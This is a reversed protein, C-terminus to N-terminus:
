VFMKALCAQKINGLKTLQTQHQSLLTDINKFLTGIKTQEYKNKPISIKQGLLEEKTIGKISTGQVSFKERQLKKWIAYTGYLQDIKLKSLSIFDQSTAYRNKMLCLKGVGVRTVIAISNEPILKTASNKVGNESVKKRSIVSEIKNEAIDSSQIWPLDGDWYEPNSTSPTSGGYTSECTEGIEKEEWAGSFGKFRIAPETAGQKPFMKELLSKKLNLLKDHKKQHQAILTDLQQFYEGIKTQEKSEESVHILTTKAQEITYHSITGIHSISSIYKRFPTSSFFTFLFYGNTESYNKLWLLDADKFYLPENTEILYPIGISGGGTVLLDGKKVSGSRASLEKYLELSIYAKKNEKGKYISVVDSTRFFPVGTDTWEHKHVRAASTIDLLKGLESSKWAKNFGKFRIAPVKNESGMKNV